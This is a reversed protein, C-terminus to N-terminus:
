GQGIGARRHRPYLQAGPPRQCEQLDNREYHVRRSNFDRLDKNTFGSPFGRNMFNTITQIDSDKRLMFGPQFTLLLALCALESQARGIGRLELNPEVANATSM